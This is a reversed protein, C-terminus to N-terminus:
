ILQSEVVLTRVGHETEETLWDFDEQTIDVVDKENFADGTGQYISSVRFSVRTVRESILYDKLENVDNFAKSSAFTSLTQIMVKAKVNM